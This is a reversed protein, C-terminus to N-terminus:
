EQSIFLSLQETAIRSLKKATEIAEEALEPEIKPDFRGMAYFSRTNRHQRFYDFRDILARYEQGLYMEAFLVLAVTARRRPRYGEKYTLAIASM